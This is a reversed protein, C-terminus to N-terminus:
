WEIIMIYNFQIEIKLVIEMDQLVLKYLALVPTFIKLVKRVNLLQQATDTERVDIVVVIASVRVDKRLQECSNWVNKPGIKFKPM